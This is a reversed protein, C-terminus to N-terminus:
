QQQQQPKNNPQQPQQSSRTATAQARPTKSPWPSASSHQQQHELARLEDAHHQQLYDQIATDYAAILETDDWDM